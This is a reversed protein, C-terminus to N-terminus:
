QWGHLPKRNRVVKRNIQFQSVVKSLFIYTKNFLPFAAFLYKRQGSLCNSGKHIWVYFRKRKKKRKPKSQRRRQPKIQNMGTRRHLTNSLEGKAEFVKRLIIYNGQVTCLRPNYAPVILGESYGLPKLTFMCLQRERQTVTYHDTLTETIVSFIVLIFIKIGQLGSCFDSLCSVSPHNVNLLCWAPNRKSQMCYFIVANM